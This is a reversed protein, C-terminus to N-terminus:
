ERHSRIRRMQEDLVAFPEFTDHDAAVIVLELLRREWVDNDHRQVGVRWIPVCETVDGHLLKWDVPSYGGSCGTAPEDIM